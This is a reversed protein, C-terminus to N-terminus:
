ALNPFSSVGNLAAHWWVFETYHGLRARTDVYCFCIVAEDSAEPPYLYAIPDGSARVEALLREWESYGGRVAIAVHHFNLLDGALDVAETYVEIPGAVPEIIEFQHRGVNATAVRAVLTQVTGGSLVEVATDSRAFEPIGLEAAAHDVAAEIDRTIYSLQFLDGLRAALQM